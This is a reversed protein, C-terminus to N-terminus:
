SRMTAAPEKNLQANWDTLFKKVGLDTLPHKVLHQFVGFPMTSGDRSSRRLDRLVYRFSAPSNLEAWRGPPTPEWQALWKENVPPKAAMDMDANPYLLFAKM